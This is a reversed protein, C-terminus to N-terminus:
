DASVAATDASAAADPSAERASLARQVEAAEPCAPACAEMLIAHHAEAAAIDGEALALMALGKLAPPNAPDVELAIGFYKGALMAQNGAAYFEAIGLYPEPRAPSFIIASQFLHIASLRDGRTAAAEAERLYDVGQAFVGTAIMTAFLSGLAAAIFRTNTTM